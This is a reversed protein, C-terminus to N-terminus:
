AEDLKLQKLFNVVKDSASIFEGDLIQEAAATLGAQHLELIRAALQHFVQHETLLDHYQTFLDYDKGSGYLWRGLVCTAHDRVGSVTLTEHSGGDICFSLRRFPPAIPFWPPPTFPLWDTRLTPEPLSPGNVPAKGGSVSRLGETPV